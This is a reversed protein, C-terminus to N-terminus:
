VRATAPAEADRTLRLRQRLDMIPREFGHYVCASVAICLAWVGIFVAVAALLSQRTVAGFFTQGINMLLFNTLYMSYSWLAIRRVVASAAVRNVAEGWPLLLAIGLSVIDFWWTRAFWSHNLDLQFLLVYCSALLALGVVALTNRWRRWAAPWSRALAAAAVGFAISDLRQVVPMRVVSGWETGDALRARLIWPIVLMVGLLVPVIAARGRRGLLAFGVALVLPFTFYFWEEVALTWSEMFFGHPAWALNQGFYLTPLVDTRWNLSTNFIWAAAALNILFFLFYNPLTRLWRRLWFGVLVKPSRLREGLRLLIGGILFGSLVFFLDVGISGLHGLYGLFWAHPYLFTLSHALVVFCIACARLLDLGPRRATM